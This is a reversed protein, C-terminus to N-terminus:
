IYVILPVITEFGFYSPNEWSDFGTFIWKRSLLIVPSDNLSVSASINLGENDLLQVALWLRLVEDLSCFETFKISSFKQEEFKKTLWLGARECFRSCLILMPQCLDHVVQNIM